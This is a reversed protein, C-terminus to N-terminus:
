RSDWNVVESWMVNVLRITNILPRSNIVTPSYVFTSVFITVKLYTIRWLTFGLIDPTLFSDYIAASRDLKLTPKRLLLGEFDCCSSRSDALLLCEPNIGYGKSRACLPRENKITYESKM